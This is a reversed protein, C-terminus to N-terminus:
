PEVVMAKIWLVTKNPQTNALVVISKKQIGKRNESDFTVRLWNEEGPKVAKKPFKPVTCGCSTSVESIVLDSKGTNEFRFSYTVSEGQLVKGFDHETKEFRIVPLKDEDEKGDATIPNRVVDGPLKGDNNSCSFLLLM